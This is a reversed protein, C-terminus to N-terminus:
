SAPNINIVRNPESASLETKAWWSKEMDTVAKVSELLLQWMQLRVYLCGCECRTGGFNVWRMLYLILIKILCGELATAILYGTLISMQRWPWIQVWVWIHVWTWLISDVVGYLSWVQSLVCVCKYTQSLAVFPFGSLVTRINLVCNSNMNLFM